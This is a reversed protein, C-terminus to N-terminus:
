FRASLSFPETLDGDTRKRELSEDTLKKYLVNPSSGNSIEDLLNETKSLIASLKGDHFPINYKQCFNQVNLLAQELINLLGVNLQHARLLESYTDIVEKMAEKGM